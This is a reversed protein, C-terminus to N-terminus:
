DLDRIKNEKENLKKPRGLFIKAKENELVCSLWTYIKVISLRLHLYSGIFIAMKMPKSEKECLTFSYLEIFIYIYIYKYKYIVM